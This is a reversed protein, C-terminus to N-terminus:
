TKPSATGLVEDLKQLAATADISRAPGTATDRLAAVIQMPTAAPYKAKLLAAAGGALAGSYSTGSSLSIEGTAPSIIPIKEGPASVSRESKSSFPLLRGNGDIAGVVLAVDDVAAYSSAGSDNGASVIVIQKQAMTRIASLVAPSAPGYSFVVIDADSGALANLGALLSSTSMQDIGAFEYTADPAAIRSAQLLGTAYDSISEPQGDGKKLVKSQVMKLAEPWPKGVFGIRVDKHLPLPSPIVMLKRFPAILNEAVLQGAKERNTQLEAPASAVAIKVENLRNLRAALRPYRPDNRPTTRQENQTFLLAQQRDGAREAIEAALWQLEGWQPYKTAIPGVIQLQEAYQTDFNPRDKQDIYSRVVKEYTAYASLADVVPLYKSSPLPQVAIEDRRQENQIIAAAAAQAIENPLGGEDGIYFAYGTSGKAHGFMTAKKGDADYSVTLDIVNTPALLDKVWTLLWGVEVGAIQQPIAVETKLGEPVPVPEFRPDQLVTQQSPTRELDQLQRKAQNTREGLRRLESLIMSPLGEALAKTQPDALGLVRVTGLSPPGLNAQWWRIVTTIYWLAAALILVGVSFFILFGLIERMHRIGGLLARAPWLIVGLLLALPARLIAAFDAIRVPTEFPGALGAESRSAIPLHYVIKGSNALLNHM